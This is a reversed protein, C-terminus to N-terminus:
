CRDDTIFVYIHYQESNHTRGPSFSSIEVVILEPYIAYDVIINM